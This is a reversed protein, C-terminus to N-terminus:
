AGLAKAGGCCGGNAIVLGEVSRRDANSPWPEDACGYSHMVSGTCSSDDYDPGGDSLGLAHGVEHNIIHETESTLANTSIYIYFVLFEPQGIGFHGSIPDDYEFDRRACGDESSTCLGTLDDRIRFYIRVPQDRTPFPCPNSLTQGQFRVFTIGDWDNNGGTYLTDRIKTRADDESISAAVDVCNTESDDDHLISDLHKHPYFGHEAEGQNVSAARVAIGLAVGILIRIAWARPSRIRVASRFLALLM